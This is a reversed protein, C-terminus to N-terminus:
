LFGWIQDANFWNWVLTIFTANSTASILLAATTFDIFLRARTTSIRTSARLAISAWPRVRLILLKMGNQHLDTIWSNSLVRRTKSENAAGLPFEITKLFYHLRLAAGEGAGRGRAVPFELQFNRPPEPTGVKKSFRASHSIILDSVGKFRGYPIRRHIIQM